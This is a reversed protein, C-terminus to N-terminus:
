RFEEWASIFSFFLAFNCLRWEALIIVSLVCVVIM